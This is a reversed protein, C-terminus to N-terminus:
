KEMRFGYFFSSIGGPLPTNETREETMERQNDAKEAASKVGWAWFRNHKRKM